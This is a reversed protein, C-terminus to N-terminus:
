ITMATPMTVPPRTGLSALKQVLTFAEHKCKFLHTQGYKIVHMSMAYTAWQKALLYEHISPCIAVIKLDNRVASLLHTRVTIDLLSKRSLAECFAHSFDFVACHISETQHLLYAWERIVSCIQEKGINGTLSTFIVQEDFRLETAIAHEETSDTLMKAAVDV